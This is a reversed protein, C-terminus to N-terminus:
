KIHINFQFGAKRLEREQEATLSGNGYQEIVNGVKEGLAYNKYRYNRGIAFPKKTKRICERLLGVFWDWEANKLDEWFMGIDELMEIRKDSIGHSSLGLYRDRQEWIWKGLKFGDPAVYKKPVFLHGNEEFYQEAYSYGEKWGTVKKPKIWQIGMGELRVIQYSSLEGRKYLKKQQHVWQFMSAGDRFLTTNPMSLTGHEKFYEEAEDARDLWIGLDKQPSDTLQMRIKLLFRIEDETLQNQNYLDQLEAWIRGLPYGGETVYDAPIHLFKRIDKYGVTMIYYVIECLLKERQKADKINFQM